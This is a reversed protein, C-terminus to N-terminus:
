AFLTPFAKRDNEESALKIAESFRREREPSGQVFRFQMWDDGVGLVENQLNAAKGQDHCSAVGDQISSTKVPGDQVIFSRNSAVIWFFLTYTYQDMIESSRSLQCGPNDLLHKRMRLVSPIGCVMTRLAKNRDKAELDDLDGSYRIVYM